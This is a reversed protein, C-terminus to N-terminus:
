GRTGATLFLFAPLGARTYAISSSPWLSGEESRSSMGSVGEGLGGGVDGSGGRDPTAIVGRRAVTKLRGLM